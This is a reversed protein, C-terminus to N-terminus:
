QVIMCHIDCKNIFLTLTNYQDELEELQSCLSMCMQTAM